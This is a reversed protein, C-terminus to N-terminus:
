VAEIVSEYCLALLVEAVDGVLAGKRLTLRFSNEVRVEPLDCRFVAHFPISRLRSLVGEVKSTCINHCIVGGLVALDKAAM